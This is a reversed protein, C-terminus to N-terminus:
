QKKARRQLVKLMSEIDDIHQKINAAQEALRRRDQLLRLIQRDRQSVVPKVPKKKGGHKHCFTDGPQSPFSCKHWLGPFGFSKVGAQCGGGNVKALKRELWIPDEAGQCRDWDEVMMREDDPIDAWLRM